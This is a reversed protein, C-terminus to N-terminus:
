SILPVEQAFFQYGGVALRLPETGRIEIKPLRFGQSAHRCIEAQRWIEAGPYVLSVGLIEQEYDEVDAPSNDKLIVYAMVM